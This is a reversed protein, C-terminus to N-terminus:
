TLARLLEGALAKMEVLNPFSKELVRFAEPHDYRRGSTRESPVIAHLLEHFVIYRVFERPVRPDDLLPHVRVTRTTRSWSGFRISRGQPTRGRRSQQRQRGWGIRYKIQGNFFERNVSRAIERLDHVCGKERLPTSTQAGVSESSTDITQAHAAVKGWDSRRRRRLYDALADWIAQPATIFQAHLRVRAHGESVFVVSAMSVRNRTLTLDVRCNGAESLFRRLSEGSTGATSAFLDGQVPRRVPRSAGM